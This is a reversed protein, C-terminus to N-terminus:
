TAAPKKWRERQKVSARTQRVAAVFNRLRAEDKKGPKREVGSVVDVGWSDFRRLAEAVNEANLGGAIILPMAERIAAALPLVEEWAFPIGTGGRQQASGSDLLIADISGHASLYEALWERGPQLIDHAQLTKIIKREGLARRFDPMGDAPEDGHLQVGTLGIRRTVEAVRAPTENVFVGIKEIGNPLKAIIEAADAIEIRRSSPAFVFGLANAGAAVTLQADHLNTTGCVKLWTM